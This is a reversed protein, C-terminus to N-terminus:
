PLESFSSLCVQHSKCNQWRLMKHAGTVILLTITRLSVNRRRRQQGKSRKDYNCCCCSQSSSSSGCVLRAIILRNTVAFSLLKRWSLDLDSFLIAACNFAKELDKEWNVAKILKTQKLIHPKCSKGRCLVKQQREIEINRNRNPSHLYVWVTM